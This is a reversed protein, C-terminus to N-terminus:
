LRDDIRERLSIRFEAKDRFLRLFDDANLFLAEKRRNVASNRTELIDRPARFVANNIPAFREDKIVRVTERKVQRLDHRLFAPHANILVAKLCRKFFLALTRALLRLETHSVLRRPRNKLFALRAREAAVRRIPTIGIDKTIAVATINALDNEPVRREIGFAATFSGMSSFLSGIGDMQGKMEPWLFICTAMLFAIAGTWILFSTKGRRIEHRTITM